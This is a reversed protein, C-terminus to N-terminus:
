RFTRYEGRSTIWNIAIPINVLRNHEHMTWTPKVRTLLMQFSRDNRDNRVFLVLAKWIPLELSARKTRWKRWTSLRTMSETKIFVVSCHIQHYYSFYMATLLDPLYIAPIELQFQSPRNAAHDTYDVSYVRCYLVMSYAIGHLGQLTDLM